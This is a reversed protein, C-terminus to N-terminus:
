RVRHRQEERARWASMAGTVLFSVTPAWLVVAVVAFGVQRRYRTAVLVGIAAALVLTVTWFRIREARWLAEVFEPNRGGFTVHFYGALERELRLQRGHVKAAALFAVLSAIITAVLRTM